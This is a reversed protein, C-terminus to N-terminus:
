PRDCMAGFREAVEDAPAISDPSETAVVILHDSEFADAIEYAFMEAAASEHSPGNCDAWGSIADIESIWIGRDDAYKRIPAWPGWRGGDASVSLGMETVGVEALADIRACPHHVAPEPPRAGTLMASAAILRREM